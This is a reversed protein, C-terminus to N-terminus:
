LIVEIGAEHLTKVMTKFEGVQAGSTGSSAFRADPALFGISNYGWYNTLGREVLQRDAVAHHVPLLEVATIGLRSLYDVAAPSALGAYTGRLERPVEPHRAT